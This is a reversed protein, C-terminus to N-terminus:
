HLILIILTFHHCTRRLLTFYIKIEIVGLPADSVNSFSCLSVMSQFYIIDFAFCLQLEVCFHVTSQLLRPLTKPNREFALLHWRHHGRAQGEWIYSTAEFGHVILAHMCMDPYNFVFCSLLVLSDRAM